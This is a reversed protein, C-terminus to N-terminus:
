VCIFISSIFLKPTTLIRSRLINAAISLYVEYLRRMVENLKRKQETVYKKTHERVFDATEKDQKSM